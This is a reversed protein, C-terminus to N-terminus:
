PAESAHRQAADVLAWGGCRLAPQGNAKYPVRGLFLPQYDGPYGERERGDPHRWKVPRKMGKHCWFVDIDVLAYPDAKREPSDDRYACDDCMRSRTAPPVDPDAPQQQLDFEPVWCTCSRAGDMVAGLCCWTFQRLFDKALLKPGSAPPGGCLLTM